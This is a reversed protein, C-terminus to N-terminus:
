HFIMAGFSVFSKRDDVYAFDLNLMEARSADMAHMMTVIPSFGCVRRADDDAAIGRIFCDTELNALSQFLEMDKVLAQEVTGRHPVFEDGYRPGIHDLDASAIFCVSKGSDACAKRLAACFSSFMGKKEALGAGPQFIRHSVSCLIPVIKFEHRGSFLHQLFLVQFEIVHESAHLIEEEASDKGIERSIADVIDRDVHTIGLPTQYDLTGASFMNRVGAHGTGLIVYVDSPRGLALAHYARAFCAGGARIDIHPAIVGVPRDPRSFFNPMGPGGNTDLFYSDLDESLARPDPNYSSGAHSCPRISQNRYVETRHAFAEQARPGELLFSHDLTKVVNIIEDLFVIRGTRSSLSAQIDRLSRRGDFLALVPLAEQPVLVVNESLALPDKLGIVRRGQVVAPFPEVMRLQPKYDPDYNM